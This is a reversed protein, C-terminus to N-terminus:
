FSMVESWTTMVTSDTIDDGDTDIDIQINVGDQQPLFWAQSDDATTTIHIRGSIIIPNYFLPLALPWQETDYSVSGNITKSAVTGVVDLYRFNSM